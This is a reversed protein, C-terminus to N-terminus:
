AADNEQANTRQLRHQLLGNNFETNDTRNFNILRVVLTVSPSLETLLELTQGADNILERPNTAKNWAAYCYQCSYNCAETLHWNIVLQQTNQM